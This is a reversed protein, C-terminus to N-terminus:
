TWPTLTLTGPFAQISRFGTWWSPSASPTSVGSLNVDSSNGYAGHRTIGVDLAEELLTPIDPAAIRDIDAKSVV